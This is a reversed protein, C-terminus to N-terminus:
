SGGEQEDESGGRQSGRCSAEPVAVLAFSVPSSQPGAWTSGEKQSEGVVERQDCQQSINESAVAGRQSVTGGCVEKMSSYLHVLMEPSLGRWYRVQM